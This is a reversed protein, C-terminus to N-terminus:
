KTNGIIQEIRNRAEALKGDHNEVIYIPAELHMSFISVASLNIDRHLNIIEETDKERKRVSREKERRAMIEPSSADIYIIAETKGKLADLDRFSLGMEYADGKKVTPHTDVVVVGDLKAAKDLIEHRADIMYSYDELSKARMQDRDKIGFKKSYMALMEDGMNLVKASKIGSLLTTKGAGQTGFILILRSM